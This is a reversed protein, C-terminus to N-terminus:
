DPTNEPPVQHVRVVVLPCSAGLPGSEFDAKTRFATTLQFTAQCESEIVVTIEILVTQLPGVPHHLAALNFANSFGGAAHGDGPVFPLNFTSLVGLTKTEHTIAQGSPSPRLAIKATGLVFGSHPTVGGSVALDVFGTASLFTVADIVVPTTRNNSFEFIFSVRDQGNERRDVRFKAFSDFPKIRTMRLIKTPTASIRVPKALTFTPVTFFESKKALAQLAKAQGKVAAHSIAALKVAKTREAEVFRRLKLRRQEQLAALAKLDLGSKRLWDLILKDAAREIKGLGGRAQPQQRAMAQRLTRKLETKMAKTM